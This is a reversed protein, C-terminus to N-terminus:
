NQENGNNKFHAQVADFGTLVAGNFKLATAQAQAKSAFSAYGYGMPTKQTRSFAYYADKGDVWVDTHLDRVWVKEPNLSPDSSLRELMCGVDDFVQYEDGVSFATAYGTESVLMKCNSCATRDAVITPLDSQGSCGILATTCVLGVATLAMLHLLRSMTRAKLNHVANM